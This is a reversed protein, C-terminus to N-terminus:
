LAFKNFNSTGFCFTIFSFNIISIFGFKKKEFYRRVVQQLPRDTKRIYKKLTKM